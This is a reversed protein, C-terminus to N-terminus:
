PRGWGLAGLRAGARTIRLSRGDFASLNGEADKVMGMSLLTRGAAKFASADQRGDSAV